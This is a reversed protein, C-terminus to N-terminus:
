QTPASPCASIHRYHLSSSHYELWDVPTCVLFLLSFFISSVPSVLLPFKLYVIRHLSQQMCHLGSPFFLKKIKRIQSFPCPHTRPSGDDSQSESMRLRLHGQFVSRRRHTHSETSLGRPLVHPAAYFHHTSPVPHRGSSSSSLPHFFSFSPKTSHFYMKEKVDVFVKHVNQVLPIKPLYLLFAALVLLTM